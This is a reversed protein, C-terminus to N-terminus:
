ALIDMCARLQCVDLVCRAIERSDDFLRELEIQKLIKDEQLLIAAADKVVHRESRVIMRVVGDEGWGEVVLFVGRLQPDIRDLHLDDVRIQVPEPLFGHSKIM